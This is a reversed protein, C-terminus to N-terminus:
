LFRSERQSFSKYELVKELEVSTCMVVVVVITWTKLIQLSIQSKLRFSKKSKWMMYRRSMINRWILSRHQEGVEQCDRDLM